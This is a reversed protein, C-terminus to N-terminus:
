HVDQVAQGFDILVIRGDLRLMLNSPKIDRHLIPPLASHLYELVGLTDALIQRIKAMDFTNSKLLAQLDQGDVFEQVVHLLDRGNVEQIYAGFVTPVQPHHLKKLVDIEREIREKDASQVSTKYQKVCVTRGNGDTANYTVASAGEGLVAGLIISDGFEM